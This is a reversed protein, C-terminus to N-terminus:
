RGRQVVYRFGLSNSKVSELIEQRSTASILNKSEDAAGGKAIRMKKGNVILSQGDETTVEDAVWEWVNGAMDYAGVPSRGEQYSKVPRIRGGTEASAAARDNWDEGWPYRRGDTGRAALEWEAETPLRVAAGIKKSLWECYRIADQWTVSTAPETATGPPFEGDIWRQPPAYDTEKVFDRYQENTVETEGISFSDVIVRRLPRGGDLGGLVIEGGPVSVEGAAAFIQEPIPTPAPTSTLQPTPPVTFTQVVEREAAPAQQPKYDILYWLSYGAVVAILLCVAAAIYLPLLRPQDKVVRTRPSIRPQATM